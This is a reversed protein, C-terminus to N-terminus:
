ALDYFLLTTYFELKMVICSVLEFSLDTHVFSAFM